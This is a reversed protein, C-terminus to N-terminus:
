SGDAKEIIPILRSLGLEVLKEKTPLGTKIDWGREIYYDVFMKKIDEKSLRNGFWDALYRDGERAKLPIETNKLYLDPILDDEKSFGERANIMKALNWVIEGARLLERATVQHGTVATYVEALWPIDRVPDHLDHRSTDCLGLSNYLEEADQVYRTLRGTNFSKDAFVREFENQTIAMLKADAKVEEFSVEESSWYTVAHQHKTKPHTLPGFGMPPSFGGPAKFLSPWVRADVNIDVGKSIPTGAEWDSAADVGLMKSMVYWGEAMTAGIDARKVLKDLLALYFNIDGDKFELGGMDESKIVGRKCLVSIYKFVRVVSNVCIGYKGAMEVFKFGAEMNKPYGPIGLEMHVVAPFSPFVGGIWTRGFADSELVHVTKCGCVGGSCCVTKVRTDNLFKGMGGGGFSIFKSYKPHNLCEKRKKLNLERHKRPNAIKIGKDGLTVIAKLNKSGAIAAAFRGANFFDDAFGLAYTVLNEGAQGIVWTGCPGTQGPHRKRLIDGVTYLDKGWLDTADCIEVDDNIVKLYCPHESHGTIVIHDYGANKMMQGFRNSGFMSNSIFYKSGDRSAPMAFKTSLYCKSSGMIGTGILPGTGFVMVNEPSLPHIGPKLFDLLINFGIGTGGIFKKALDLNIPEKRIRKSALDVYLISGGYGYYTRNNM